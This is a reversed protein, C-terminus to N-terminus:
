LGIHKKNVRLMMLLEEIYETGRESYSQLGQILAKATVPENEERQQHRIDRLKAYASHRNLNHLYTKIGHSLNRFKAVEHVSGENRQKPVFGCGKNFCWLGFFNYGQRAFRSSGWGSENAAQMLILAPPIIDVRRLLDTAAEQNNLGQAVRYKLRFQNLLEQEPELLLGGQSTKEHITSVVNRETWLMKNQRKIEPMLYSFFAKKKEVLDKYRNFDPVLSAAVEEQDLMGKAAELIRSSSASNVESPSRHYLAFYVVIAMLFLLLLIINQKNLTFYPKM